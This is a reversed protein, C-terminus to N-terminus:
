EDLARYTRDLLVRPRDTLNTTGRHLLNGDRLMADGRRMLIRTTYLQPLSYIRTRVEEHHMRHSGPIVEMPGNADNIDTLPVNFTLRRRRVPGAPDGTSGDPVDPHWPMTDSDRLPCEAKTVGYRWSGLVATVLEEIVANRRFRDDDLAGKLLEVYRAIDFSMRSRGRLSSTDGTELRAIEGNLLPVFQQHMAEVLDTPLFSRLLIFGNLNLEYLWLRKQEPDIPV